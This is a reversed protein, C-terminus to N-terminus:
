LPYSALKVSAEEEGRLDTWAFFVKGDYVEMQPFGSGRAENSYAVLLPEEMGGAVTVKRAKIVAEGNERALWSVMAERSNIMAVDVRGLPQQDDVLMPEGFTEGGDRSFIVQVKAVENSASFWGVVLENGMGDIRPGNVPCGEIKWHDQHVTLPQTWVGNVQRVISIDRVESESRDRYVIVPGNNTMAGGTQCCDCVRGDLEVEDQVAGDMTVKATRLTMAGGSHGHGGGTNRGDLWAVQFSGDPLPLMTVFGHETPTNDTHPTIAGSWTDSIKWVLRVDYSYTGPASKALYHSLMGGHRNIAIMPYDAWNVFWNMGRAIEVRPSWRGEEWVSFHTISTDGRLEGWSLYLLSDAGAILYPLANNGTAPSAMQEVTAPHRESQKPAHTCAGILVVLLVAVSFRVM